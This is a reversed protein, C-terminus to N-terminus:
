RQRTGVVRIFSQSMSPDTRDTTVCVTVSGTQKGCPSVWSTMNQAVGRSESTSTTRPCLQSTRCLRNISQVVPLIENQEGEVDTEIGNVDSAIAAGAGTGWGIGVGDTEKMEVAANLRVAQNHLM